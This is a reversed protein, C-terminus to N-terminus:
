RSSTGCALRPQPCMPCSLSFTILSLRDPDPWWTGCLSLRASPAKRTREENASSQPTLYTATVSQADDHRGGVVAKQYLAVETLELPPLCLLLILCSYFPLRALHTRTSRRLPKNQVHCFFWRLAQPLPIVRYSKNEFPNRMCYYAHIECICHPFFFLMAYFFACM